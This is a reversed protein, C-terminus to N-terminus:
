GSVPPGIAKHSPKIHPECQSNAKRATIPIIPPIAITFFLGVTAQLAINTKFNSANRM